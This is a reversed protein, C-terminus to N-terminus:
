SPVPSQLPLSMLLGGWWADPVQLLLAIVAVYRLGKGLAMWAICRWFPLRLWGALACLPDGVVPLWALVLAAPGMRELWRLYRTSREARLAGRVGRGLWYDLAGGATNGVTAVAVVLWFHDPNLRAYAFAAPESGMPLLTASVFAFVFVAGLGNRPLAFWEFLRYVLAEM